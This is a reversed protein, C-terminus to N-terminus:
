NMAGARNMATHFVRVIEVRDDGVRYVVLYPLGSVVLERTGAVEGSRGSEPFRGLNRIAEHIRERAQRAAAPNEEGIYAIQQRLSRRASALWAIRM